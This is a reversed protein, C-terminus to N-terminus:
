NNKGHDEWSKDFLKKDLIPSPEGKLEAMSQKFQRKYLEMDKALKNYVVVLENIKNRMMNAYNPDLQDIGNNICYFKELTKLKEYDYVNQTPM